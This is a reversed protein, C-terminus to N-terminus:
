RARVPGFWATTGDGNLAKIRYRFDVSHRTTRDLFRYAAGSVSGKATILSHSIRQWSHARSRYVHFGLLDAETGTRWRLLVAERSRAARFGYVSVALPTTDMIADDYHVVKTDSCAQLCTFSIDLQASHADFPPNTPATTSGTILHWSGDNSPSNTKAASPNANSGTCNAGSWYSASFTISIVPNTASVVTTSYWVSMYYTTGPTVTVCDSLTDATSGNLTGALRLSAAGTRHVSTDRTIAGSSSPNWQCPIGSCDNEFGSNPVINAAQASTVGLVLSMALALGLITKHARVSM